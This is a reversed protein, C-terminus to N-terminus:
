VGKRVKLNDAFVASTASPILEEFMDRIEEPPTSEDERLEGNNYRYVRLFAAALHSVLEEVSRFGTTDAIVGLERITDASLACAAPLGKVTCTLISRVIRYTPNDPTAMNNLADAIEKPVRTHLGVMEKEKTKCRRM